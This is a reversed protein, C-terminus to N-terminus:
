GIRCEDLGKGNAQDLESIGIFELGSNLADGRKLEM